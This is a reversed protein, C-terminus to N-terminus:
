DDREREEAFDIQIDYPFRTIVAPLMPRLALASDTWWAFRGLRRLLVDRCWGCRDDDRRLLSFPEDREPLKRLLLLDDPLCLLWISTLRLVRATENSWCDNDNSMVVTLTGDDSCWWICFNHSRLLPSSLSWCETISSTTSIVIPMSLSLWSILLLLCSSKPLPSTQVPPQIPGDDTSVMCWAGISWWKLGGRTQVWHYYELQFPFHNQRSNLMIHGYRIEIRWFLLYFHNSNVSIGFRLAFSM